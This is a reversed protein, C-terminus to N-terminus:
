LLHFYAWVYIHDSGFVQLVDELSRDNRDFAKGSQICSIRNPDYYIHDIALNGKQNSMPDLYYSPIPYNKNAQDFVNQYGIWQFQECLDIEANLDGALITMSAMSNTLHHVKEKVMKAQSLSDMYDLHLNVLFLDKSPIHVIQIAEGKIPDLIGNIMKVEKSYIWDKKILTVLGNPISSESPNNATFQFFYKDGLKMQFLHLLDEQAEQIMVVDCYCSSIESCIKEMRKQHDNALQYMSPYWEKNVWCPALINWSMLSLDCRQKKEM